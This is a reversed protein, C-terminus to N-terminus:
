KRDRPTTGVFEVKLDTDFKAKLIIGLEGMNEPTVLIIGDATSIENEEDDVSTITYIFKPM